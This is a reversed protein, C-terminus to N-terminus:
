ADLAREMEACWCEYRRALEPNAEPTFREGPKDEPWDGPFGALLYATGRATAEQEAPRFVPLGSLDALRRCLGDFWALGGTAVLRTVPPATKQLPPLNAQRLFVM